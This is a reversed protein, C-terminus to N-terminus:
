KFVIAFAELKDGPAPECSTKIMAGFESGKEVKKVPTKGTQLSVVEGRGLELDRRLIKVEGGVLLEGEDVSGGLVVRGKSANFLKIVRAFGTREEVREKPRRQAVEQALWVALKYIVDFVEVSIQQRQALERAEREIKVNLGVVIGPTTGAALKIDGDTIAGVGRSVVRVELREDKPLKKLEHLVADGVGAVDTKIVLPVIVHVKEEESEDENEKKPAVVPTSKNARL